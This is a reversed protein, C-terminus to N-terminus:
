GKKNYIKYLVKTKKHKMLYLQFRLKISIDSLHLSKFATKLEQSNLIMNMEYLADEESLKSAMGLCNCAYYLMHIKLQESFDYDSIQDFFNHLYENM